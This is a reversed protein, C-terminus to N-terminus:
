ASAAATCIRNLAVSKVEDVLVDEDDERWGVDGVDVPPDEPRDFPVTTAMATAIGRISIANITPSNKPQRHRLRGCSLPWCPDVAWCDGVTAYRGCDVVCSGAPYRWAIAVCGGGTYGLGVLM